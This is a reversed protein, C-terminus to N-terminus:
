IPYSGKINGRTLCYIIYGTNFSHSGTWLGSQQPLVSWVGHNTAFCKVKQSYLGHEKLKTVQFLKTLNQWFFRFNTFFNSSNSLALYTRFWIYLIRTDDNKRARGSHLHHKGCFNSNLAWGGQQAQSYLKGLTLQTRHRM